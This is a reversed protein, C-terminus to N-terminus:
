RLQPRSKRGCFPDGYGRPDRIDPFVIWALKGSFMSLQAKLEGAPDAGSGADTM